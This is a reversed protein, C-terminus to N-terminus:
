LREVSVRDIQGLARRVSFDIREDAALFFELARHV